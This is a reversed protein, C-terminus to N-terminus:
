DDKTLDLHQEKWFLDIPQSPIDKGNITRTCNKSITIPILKEITVWGYSMSWVKDGVKIPYGHLTIVPEKIERYEDCFWGPQTVHGWETNKNRCEIPKSLAFAKRANFHKDKLIYLEDASWDPDKINVWTNFIKDYVYVEAGNAWAEIEVKWKQYESRHM